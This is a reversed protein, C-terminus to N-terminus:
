EKSCTHARLDVDHQVSHFIVRVLVGVIIELTRPPAQRVCMCARQPHKNCACAQVSPSSTARVRECAPHAQRVCVSTCQSQKDCTSARVSPTSTARVCVCMCACTCTSLTHQLAIVVGQGVAWELQQPVRSGGHYQRSVAYGCYQLSVACGHNQRLVAYGHNQRSAAYGYNQRSVAYRSYHM